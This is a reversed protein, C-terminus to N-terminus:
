PNPKEEISRVKLGDYFNIDPSIVVKRPPPLQGAFYIRDEEQREPEITLQKLQDQADVVWIRDRGRLAKRPIAFVKPLIKGKLQVDVFMDVPLTMGQPSQTQDIEIVVTMLSTQANIKEVKRRLIGNWHHVVRGIKRTITATSALNTETGFNLLQVDSLPISVHVEIPSLPHMRGVIQGPAIIQGVALEAQTLHGTFPAEFKTENLQRKAQKVASKAANLSAIAFNVQPVRRALMSAKPLNEEAPVNQQILLHEKKFVRQNAIALKYEYGARAKEALARQYALEYNETEITFLIQGSRVNGGIKMNPHVEAVIGGVELSVPLERSARSYGNAYVKVPHDKANVSIVEVVRRPANQKLKRTPKKKLAVMLSAVGVSMLLITIPLLSRHLSFFRSIADIIKNHRNM